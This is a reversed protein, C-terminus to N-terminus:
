VAEREFKIETVDYVKFVKGSASELVGGLDIGGEMYGNNPEFGGEQFWTHFWYKEGKYTCPIRPDFM